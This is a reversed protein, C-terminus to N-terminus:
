RLYPLLEKKDYLPKRGRAKHKRPVSGRNMLQIAYKRNYHCVACFEDLIIKKEQRTGLHYRATIEELYAMKEKHGM